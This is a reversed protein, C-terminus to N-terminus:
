PIILRQGRYIRDSTLGNRAKILSPTTGYLYAIGTLTEFSMVIHTRIMPGKPTPTPIVPTLTPTPYDVTISTPVPTRTPESPDVPAMPTATPPVYERTPTPYVPQAPAVSAGPIRIVQGVRLYNVNAINNYRALTYVSAGYRAAITSLSEGPKVIHISEEQAQASSTAVPMFFCLIAIITAM